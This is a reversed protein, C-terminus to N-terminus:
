FNMNIYRSNLFGCVQLIKLKFYAMNKYGYAKKKLTKIVNNVGESLSSTVRFKFYNKFTNWGQDFNKWWRTLAMFKEQHIWLGLQEFKYRAEEADKSDFIQFMGEKIIELYCFSTNEKLVDNLHRKEVSTRRDAKKLFLNAFKSRTLRKVEGKAIYQNLWMRDDNVANEFTQMVHFRDWVFTANPCHETTSVKYADHQDAAVVEIEACREPGIVKYFEDLAERSRSDSVWLVRRSDLDCVVTFFRKDRSEKRYYSKKRAYVEDVCIRKFPPIKYEQFMRRMREYDLRYVSMAENGTFDAVRTVPSFECMRGVWWAYEKTLHPSENSIFDLAESRVKKCQPCHRKERWICIYTTFNFIPMTKLKLPYRGHSNGLEHGCRSCLCKHPEDDRKKLYIEIEGKQRWEKLDSVEYGPILKSLFRPLKM